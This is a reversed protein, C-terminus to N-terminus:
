ANPLLRSTAQRLVRLKNKQHSLLLRNVLVSSPDRELARRAEAIAQDITRLSREIADLTEPALKGRGGELTHELELVALEVETRAASEASVLAVGRDPAALGAAAVPARARLAYWVGAASLLAIAIGAAYAQPLTLSVRRGARAPADAPFTLVVPDTGLPAAGAIRAEIGGWLDRAPAADRPLAAIEQLMAALADKEARCRGCAEVHRRAREEGPPALLGDLWDHIEGTTLHASM